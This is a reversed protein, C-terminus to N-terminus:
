LVKRNFFDETQQNFQDTKLASDLKRELNTQMRLVETEYTPLNKIEENYIYTAEYCREKENYLVNQKLVETM